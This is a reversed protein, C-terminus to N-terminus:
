LEAEKDMKWYGGPGEGWLISVFPQKSEIKSPAGTTFGAWLTGNSDRAIYIHLFGIKSLLLNADNTNQGAQLSPFGRDTNWSSLRNHRHRNQQAIRMRGGSKSWFQIEEPLNEPYRPDKVSASIYDGNEPYEKGLFLLLNEVQKKPVQIYTHGGGGQPNDDKHREINYLDSPNLRLSWIEVIEKEKNDM